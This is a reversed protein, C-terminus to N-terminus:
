GEYLFLFHSPPNKLGPDSIAHMCQASPPSGLLREGGAPQGGDANAEALCKCRGPSLGRAALLKPGAHTGSFESALAQGSSATPLAGRGRRGAPPPAPFLNQPHLPQHGESYIASIAISCASASLTSSHLAEVHQRHQIRAPRHRLPYSEWQSHLKSPPRSLRPSHDFQIGLCSVVPHAEAPM